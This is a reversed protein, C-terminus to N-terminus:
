SSYIDQSHSFYKNMVVSIMNDMLRINYDDTPQVASFINYLDRDVTFSLINETVQSLKTDIIENNKKVLEYVNKQVIDSVVNRSITYYKMGFIGLPITILAIYTIVLKTRLGTNKFIFLIRKM